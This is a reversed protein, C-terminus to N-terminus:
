SVHLIEDWEGSQLFDFVCPAIEFKLGKGTLAWVSFFILRMRELAINLWSWKNTINVFMWQLKIAKQLGDVIADKISHM